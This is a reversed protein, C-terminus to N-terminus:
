IERFCHNFGVCTLHRLDNENEKKKEESGEGSQTSGVTIQDAIREADEASNAFLVSGKKLLHYKNSEKKSEFKGSPFIGARFVNTDTLAFDCYSFLSPYVFADSLLCVKNGADGSFFSPLDDVKSEIRVRFQRQEGGFFVITDSLNVPYEEEKFVYVNKVRAYFVFAGDDRFRYFQQKFFGKTKSGKQIGVQTAQQFVTGFPIAMQNEDVLLDPYQMKPDFDPMFPVKPISQNAWLCNGTKEWSLEMQSLPHAIRLSVGGYSVLLPSIEEIAGFNTVKSEPHFSKEGILAKAKESHNSLPLCENEQLLLFRLLGLLGSQQPYPNSYALYNRGKEDSLEGFTREGGFYYDELPTLTIKCNYEIM